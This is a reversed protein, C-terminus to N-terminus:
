VTPRSLGHHNLATEIFDEIIDKTVWTKDTLQIVWAFIKVHTDCSEVPIEYTSSPPMPVIFQNNEVSIM